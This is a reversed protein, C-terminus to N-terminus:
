RLLTRVNELTLLALEQPRELFPEVDRQVTRWDASKLRKLVLRRWNKESVDPGDWGTQALANGLYTLNPAPWTRDSLYWVLDYVDRGKVFPRALLAHLKGALLTAPDHHHLRILIHRRVLSTATGAGTPTRTDLEVKISLSQKQHPSLGLEHPLGDFHLFVSRVTKSEKATVRM